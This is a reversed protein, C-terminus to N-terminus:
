GNVVGGRKVTRKNRNQEAKTAWRCNEPSYGKDNDVRDITLGEQYGNKTAWSLFALFDDRWEDCISIGRGGYNKYGTAKPNYCRSKMGIWIRHLRHAPETECLQKIGKRHVLCGCSKTKGARLCEAAVVVENGCDCVCKWQPKWKKSHSYGVVTLKGFRKGLLDTHNGCGCSTSKGSLLNGALVEKRRGCECQCLWKRSHAKNIAQPVEKIVTWKGFKKGELNMKAM